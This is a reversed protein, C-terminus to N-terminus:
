LSNIMKRDYFSHHLNIGYNSFLSGNFNTGGAAATWSRPHATRPLASCSHRCDLLCHQKRITLESLTLVYPRILQVFICGTTSPSWAMKVNFLGMKLVRATLVVPLALSRCVKCSIPTFNSIANFCNWKFMGIINKLIIEHFLLFLQENILQM